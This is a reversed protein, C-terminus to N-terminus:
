RMAGAAPGFTWLKNAWFSWIMVIGTTVLQALLYRLRGPVLPIPLAAMWPDLVSMCLGTLLFGIATVVIFRVLATHHRMDSDFTWRRNLVYAIAGGVLYGALAALVPRTGTLEVLAVLTGYHGVAALVGVLGFRMFQEILARM